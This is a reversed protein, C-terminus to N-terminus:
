TKGGWTGVGSELRVLAVGEAPPMNYCYPCLVFSVNGGANQYVLLEFGDLPCINEKWLKINGQQPLSYM